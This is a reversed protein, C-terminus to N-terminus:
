CVSSKLKISRPEVAAGAADAACGYFADSPPPGDPDLTHAHRNTASGGDAPGPQRLVRTTTLPRLYSPSGAPDVHRSPRFGQRQRFDDPACLGGNGSRGASGLRGPSCM